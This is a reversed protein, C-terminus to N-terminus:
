WIGASGQMKSTLCWLLQSVRQVCVSTAGWVVKILRSSSRIGSHPHANAMTFGIAMSREFGRVASRWSMSCPLSRRARPIYTVSNGSPVRKAGPVSPFNWRPPAARAAAVPIGTTTTACLAPWKQGGRRNMLYGLGLDAPIQPGKQGRSKRM